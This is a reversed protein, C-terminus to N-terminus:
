NPPHPTPPPSPPPSPPSYTPPPPFPLPFPSCPHGLRLNSFVDVFGGSTSLHMSANGGMRWVAMFEGLYAQLSDITRRSNM